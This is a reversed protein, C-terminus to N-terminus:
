LSLEQYEEPHVLELYLDSKLFRPFADSELLGQIRKQPQDFSTHTPQAIKSALSDKLQSDLNIQPFM